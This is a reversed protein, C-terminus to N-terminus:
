DRIHRWTTEGEARYSIADAFMAAILDRAAGIDASTRFESIRVVKAGPALRIVHNRSLVEYTRMVRAPKAAPTTKAARKICRSCTLEQGEANWLASHSWLVAGCVLKTKGDVDVADHVTRKGQKGYILVRRKAGAAAAEDIAKRRAAIREAEGAWFKASSADQFKVQGYYRVDFYDTMADSGDHNYAQHIRELTLQAANAEDTLVQHVEAGPLDRHQGAVKCWVNSCRTKRGTHRDYVEGDCDKYADAWNEVTVNISSGGSYSETRVSYKVPSGPLLGDAIAQKIDRRVLGAIQATTKGETEDYKYGYSREYM